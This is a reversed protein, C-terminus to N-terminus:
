LTADDDELADDSPQLLAFALTAGLVTTSFTKM